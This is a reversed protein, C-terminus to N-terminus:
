SVWKLQGMEPGSVKPYGLGDAEEQSMHGKLPVVPEM